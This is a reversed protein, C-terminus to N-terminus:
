EVETMTFYKDGNAIYSIIQGGVLEIPKFHCHYRLVYIVEHTRSKVLEDIIYKEPPKSEDVLPLLSGKTLLLSDAIM